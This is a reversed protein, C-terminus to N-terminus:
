RVNVDVELGHYHLEDELKKVIDNTSEEVEFPERETDCCWICSHEEFPTIGSVLFPNVFIPLGDNYRTFKVFV